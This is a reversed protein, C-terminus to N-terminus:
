FVKQFPDDIIIKTHITVGLVYFVNIYILPSSDISYIFIALYFIPNDVIHRDPVISLVSSLRIQVGFGQSM